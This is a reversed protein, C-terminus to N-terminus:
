PDLSEVLRLNQISNYCTIQIAQFVEIALYTYTAENELVTFQNEDTANNLECKYKGKELPGLNISVCNPEMYCLVRCAGENPVVETRIVHNKMAMNAVPEKFMIIRDEDDTFSVFLIFYWLLSKAVFRLIQVKYTFGTVM